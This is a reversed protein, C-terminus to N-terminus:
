KRLSRNCFINVIHIELLLKSKVKKIVFDLLFFLKLHYCVSHRLIGINGGDTQQLASEM